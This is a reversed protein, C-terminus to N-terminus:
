PECSQLGEAIGARLDKGVPSLKAARIQDTTDELDWLSLGASGLSWLPGGPGTECRVHARFYQEKNIKVKQPHPREVHARDGTGSGSFINTGGDTVSPKGM